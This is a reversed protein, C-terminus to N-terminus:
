IVLRCHELSVTDTNISTNTNNVASVNTYTAHLIFPEDMILAILLAAPM